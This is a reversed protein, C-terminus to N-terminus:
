QRPHYYHAWYNYRDFMQAYPNRYVSIPYPMLPYLPQQSYQSDRGVTSPAAYVIDYNEDQLQPGVNGMMQGQPKSITSLAETRRLTEIKTRKRDKKILFCAKCTACCMPLLTILILVAAAFIILLGVTTWIHLRWGCLHSCLGDDSVSDTCTGYTFLTTFRESCELECLSKQESETFYGSECLCVFSGESEAEVNEYCGRDRSGTCIETCYTENYSQKVASITVTGILLLLAVVFLHSFNLSM